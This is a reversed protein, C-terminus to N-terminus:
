SDGEARALREAVEDIRADYLDPADPDTRQRGTGAGQIGDPQGNAAWGSGRTPEKAASCQSDVRDRLGNASLELRDQGVAFAENGASNDVIAGEGNVGLVASERAEGGMLSGTGLQRELLAGVAETRPRGYVREALTSTAHRLQQAITHPDVGRESLWTAHTRRLDNFSAHPIGLEVCARRLENGASTWSDFLRGERNARELSWELLIRFPGPVNVEGRSRKTKTGRMFWRVGGARTDGAEARVSEAWRACTAVMWAIRAAKNPSLWLCLAWLELTTLVRTRPVYEADIKPIVRRPDWSLVVGDRAVYCGRGRDECAARAAKSSDAFAFPEGTPDHATFM